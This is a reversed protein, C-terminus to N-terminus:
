PRGPARPSETRSKWLALPGQASIDRSRNLTRNVSSRTIFLDTLSDRHSANVKKWGTGVKRLERDTAAASRVNVCILVGRQRSPLKSQRMVSPSFRSRERPTRRPLM